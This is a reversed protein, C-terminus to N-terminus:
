CDISGEFVSAAPGTMKVLQDHANWEILLSGYRYDVTVTNDLWDNHHGAIVAACANSGCAHTLGVGREYTHLRVHNKNIIHMFGVNAGAPFYDHTSISQGLQQLQIGQDADIKLIAHPNGLSIVSMETPEGNVTISTLREQIQPAGMIVSIRDYDQIHIPFVGAKTQISFDSKNSIGKEHLFRAVCRLGNGCQEAESGDANFIRCSYDADTASGIVLLQDFGIGIHRDSLRQITTTDFSVPATLTNIIAFDNGLGHMKKFNIKMIYM